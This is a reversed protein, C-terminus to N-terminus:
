ANRLRHPGIFPWPSPFEGVQVEILGPGGAKRGAALAEGLEDPTSVRCGRIGFSEALAAFDPNTLDSAIPRNGYKQVQFRRVNGYCNDNFVVIQVPIDHHKATALDNITFMAGGDGAIVVVPVDRRAHAAGLGTAISWGLTGQFGPSLYTRPKEVPYLAEAAYGVQTLDSVLIGDPGLYAGIADLWAKQPALTEQLDREVEERIMTVEALWRSRPELSLAGTLRAAAAGADAHIAIDAVHGRALENADIDIHISKLDADAGWQVLRAGLRTGLGIVLDIKPWLRRGVPPLLSLPHSAPVAGRGNRNAMVPAGIKEALALVAAGHDLAGSGVVILPREAAAIMAVAREIEADSIVPNEELTADAADPCPATWTDIPVELGVPRPRGSNLRTFAEGILAASTAGDDVRAAWKSLQALISLQDPIEHLEGLEKGYGRTSTQGVLMMVPANVAWATSLAATANLFGPGPVICCAQPKGTAMAAGLAMYAAGQEHRAHVPNLESQRDYLADFFDDNQVGPLCYLTDHGGNILADVMRGAVTNTM